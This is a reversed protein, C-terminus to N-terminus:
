NWKHFRAEIDGLTDLTKFHWFKAVQNTNEELKKTLFKGPKKGSILHQIKTPKHERYIKLSLEKLIPDCKIHDILSLLYGLYQAEKTDRLIHDWNFRELNKFIFLPLISNLEPDRRAQKLTMLLLENIEAKSQFKQEVSIPAGYQSLSWRLFNTDALDISPTHIPKIAIVYGLSKLIKEITSIKPEISGDFIGYLNSRSIGTELSLRTIGFQKSEDRITDLDM